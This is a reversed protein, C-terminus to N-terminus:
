TGVRRRALWDAVPPFLTMVTRTLGLNSRSDIAFLLLWGAGTSVVLSFLFGVVGDLVGDLAAATGAAVLGATTVALVQLGLRPFPRRLVRRVAMWWGISSVVDTVLWAGAAGVVGFWGALPWGTGAMVVTSLVTLGAPIRPYGLGLLMPKSVVGVSIVIAAGALVQIPPGAGVWQHGLVETTLSDALVGLAAYGPVLLALLGFFGAQWAVAARSLDEQLRAHLPMGVSAVIGQLAQLPLFALRTALYFLGLEVTGLRRSVVARLLAEGLVAAVSTVFVWRGFRFLSRASGQDLSLRPRHPALVYSLVLRSGNAAFVGIVLAWVGLLPALAISVVAETAAEPLEIFTLRRFDLRRTLVPIKASALAHVVPAFAIVRLIPTVRPENFLSAILPSSAAVIGGVAVTRALTITWATDYHRDEVERRQVLAPFLGVDSLTLLLEITVWAIALLGFDAPALIRALILFRVLSILRGVILSVGTWVIARGARGALSETM